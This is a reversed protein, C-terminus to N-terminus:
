VEAGAGDGDLRELVLPPRAVPGAGIAFAGDLASTAAALGAEDRAHVVALVGGQEVPDGVKVLDTLGVALDVPDETRRRGAGLLLCARGVREADVAEVTGAARAAIPARVPAAPLRDPADVVSPDGGQAEVMARFRELASGDALAGRLRRRAADGDAEVGARQLAEAGLALTLEVVDPPGGGRLVEISEVVEVANGVAGGLPEDMATVLASVDAGLGRGVGVLREALRRADARTRMFAGRGCKVDLVLHDIGEALKKCLISATILPISPVTGTVDRLAYLKRDAPALRETQGTIACGCREVTRLFEAESLDTRFGPIAALKDLTGGTIGLGRGSLMPVALGCAALLPALPLSIKDGIGGTSHKDVKPKRIASTDLVAGSAIMARTLAATEEDSMGRLYIAMALAAMQYDPIEGRAYGLIFAEIEAADLAGGDRKKEIVWQPVM